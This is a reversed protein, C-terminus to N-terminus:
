GGAGSHPDRPAQSPPAADIRRPGLPSVAGLAGCGAKVMRRTIPKCNKKKVPMAIPIQPSGAAPSWSEGNLANQMAHARPLPVTVGACIGAKRLHLSLDEHLEVVRVVLASFDDTYALLSPEVTAQSPTKKPCTSGVCRSQKCSGPSKAPGKPRRPPPPALNAGKDSFLVQPAAPSHFRLTASSEKAELAM